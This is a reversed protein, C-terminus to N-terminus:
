VLIDAINQRSTQWWSVLRTAAELAAEAQDVQAAFATQTELRPTDVVFALSQGARRVHGGIESINVKGQVYGAHKALGGLMIKVSASPASSDWCQLSMRPKPLGSWSKLTKPVDFYFTRSATPRVGHGNPNKKLSLDPYYDAAFAYFNEFFAESSLNPVPEYPTSAQVIADKLLLLESGSMKSLFAEYPIQLDFMNASRTASLYIRPALLISKALKGQSRLYEVSEQYRRPQALGEVSVSYGADIKNEILLLTGCSLELEIDISGTNIRHRTQRKITKIKSSGDGNALSLFENAFASNEVFGRLFLSDTDREFIRKTM